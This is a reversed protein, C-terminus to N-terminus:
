RSFGHEIRNAKSCYLAAAVEAAEFGGGELTFQM